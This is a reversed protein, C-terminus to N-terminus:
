VLSIKSTVSACIDAFNDRKRLGSMVYTVNESDKEAYVGDFFMKLIAGDTCAILFRALSNHDMNGRNIVYVIFSAIFQKDVEGANIIKDFVEWFGDSLCGRFVSCAIETLSSSQKFLTSVGANRVNSLYHAELYGDVGVAKAEMLYVLGMLTNSSAHRIRSVINPNLGAMLAVTTGLGLMCDYNGFGGILQSGNSNMLSRQGDAFLSNHSLM